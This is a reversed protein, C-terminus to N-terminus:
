LIAGSTLYTKILEKRVGKWGGIEGLYKHNFVAKRLEILEKTLQMYGKQAYYYLEELQRDLYYGNYRSGKYHKRYACLSTEVVSANDDGGRAKINAQVICLMKDLMEKTINSPLKKNKDWYDASKDFGFLNLMGSTVTAGQLWEISDMNKFKVGTLAVYTELFLFASFRGFNKWGEVEQVGKNLDITEDTIFHSKNDYNSLCEFFSDKMKIYKRDSQFLLTQKHNDVFCRTNGLVEQRKLYLIIATGVCYTIAFLYSLLFRDEKSLKHKDAWAKLLVGNCECDGRIHYDVFEDMRQRNNKM